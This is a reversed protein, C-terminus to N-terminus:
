KVEWSNTGPLTRCATTSAAAFDDDSNSVPSGLMSSLKNDTVETSSSPGSNASTSLGSSKRKFTYVHLPSGNAERVSTDGSLPTDQRRHDLLSASRSYKKVEDDLNRPQHLSEKSSEKGKRKPVQVSYRTM